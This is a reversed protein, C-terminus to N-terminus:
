KMNKGPDDIASLDEDNEARTGANQESQERM